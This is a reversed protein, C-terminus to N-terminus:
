QKSVSSGGENAVWINAGDFAVGWPISGTTFPGFVTRDSVRIAHLANDYSSSVWVYTGDFAIGEPAGGVSAVTIPQGVVTMTSANIETVDSSGSNVVWMNTGDFAIATPSIGVPIPAGAPSGDSANLVTVTGAAAVNTVWIHTGDFAIGSANQGAPYNNIYAGNSARLETVFGSGYNTVWINTGDFAVGFPNSFQYGASYTTVTGASRNISSVTSDTNNAVWMKVGDYAIGEPGNGVNYTYIVYGDSARLKTVSASGHNTVWMAAGDFALFSPNTGVAFTAAQSQNVQYWRLIGIPLTNAGTGGTAGAAGTAGTPGNPGTDGTAGPLGMAGPNGTTGTPGPSGTAGNAGQAGTAGTPGTAGLPGSPGTVNLTLLFFAQHGATNDAGGSANKFVIFISYTGPTFSALPPYSPFQATIATSSDSEVTLAIGSLAISYVGKGAVGLLNAGTITVTKASYNVTAKTISPTQAFATACATLLLSLFVAPRLCWHSRSESLFALSSRKRSRKPSVPSPVATQTGPFRM